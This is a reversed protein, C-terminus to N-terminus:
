TVAPFEVGTAENIAKRGTYQEWRRVIVDVFKPDLEILRASMGLRDAAILTSGSGGFGDVIIDGPRASAKLMKEILGVPKMTPHEGSRQPKDHYIVSGPHEEVQADGSVVLISDGTKVAWRGDPLKTIPGNEGYEIVTTLKRGGYWRHKSGPKWGYLVPEHIPQFDAMGLVMQNKKWILMQSFHFGAQEFLTRFLGGAKDSHAVYIVAGRKLVSFMSAYSDRLLDSFEQETMKDNAISGTASRTGGLTKDLLKNKRGLDVNYPPDTWIVDALEGKMLREIDDVSRCDGCAVRHPGCVWVDGPVSVLPLGEEPLEDPDGALEPEDMVPALLEALEDETFGTLQLNYDLEDLERLELSLLETDWGANMAIRNDALIYAKRQAESWGTCDITPVFGIPIPSGNPFTIQKGQKYLLEASQCRGHGAIIGDADVMVPGTWGFEELSAAIEELQAPSHTRANRYYPVLHSLERLKIQPVEVDTGILKKFDM